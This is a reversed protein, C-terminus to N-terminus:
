ARSRARQVSRARWVRGMAAIMVEAGVALVVALVVAM